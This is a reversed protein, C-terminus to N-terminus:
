LRGDVDESNFIHKLDFIVNIEKCYEHIVEISLEKFQNHAVALIVADYYKEKLSDELDINHEAKVQDNNVWPDFIEVNCKYRILNDYLDKIKTNRYDPCNEKFAFGLILVNAGIISISKQNMLRIAKDAVHQSMNENRERGATIMKSDIGIKRAKYTLYHPDVGICHGGVLGPKYQHFNWKTGAAKLVEETDIGIKDFIISLENILAINVDRQINEIVKAAEAVMVSSAQHTGATIISSYLQNIKKAIDPNSGSTIKKIDTLKHTKDGPNIREPSYGYFFDVNAKLKSQSELIPVCEEETLGPYVTSEYVVIDNIDLLDGIMRSANKLAKIDPKNTTDIPTPVTIIYINCDSLDLHDSTFELHDAALLEKKTLENTYDNSNKLDQIRNKNIDFGITPYKKGFESALPLGVYGLGVIGIKIDELTMQMSNRQEAM